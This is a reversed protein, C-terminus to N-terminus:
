SFLYIQSVWLPVGASECLRCVTGRKVGYAYERIAIHELYTFEHLAYKGFSPTIEHVSILFLLHSYRYAIVSLPPAVDVNLWQRTCTQDSDVFRAQEGDHALCVGLLGM